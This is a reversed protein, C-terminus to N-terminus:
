QDCPLSIIEPQPDPVVHCFPDLPFEAQLSSIPSLFFLYMPPLSFRPPKPKTMAYVM